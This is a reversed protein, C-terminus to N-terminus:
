IATVCGSFESLGKTGVLNTAHWDITREISEGEDPEPELITVDTTTVALHGLFGREGHFQSRM